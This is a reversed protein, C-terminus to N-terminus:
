QKYHVTEALRQDIRGIIKHQWASVEDFSLGVVGQGLAGTCYSALVRADELDTPNSLGDLDSFYGRLLDEYGELSNLGRLNLFCVEYISRRRIADFPSTLFNSEILNIWFPLDQRLDSKLFAQRAALRIEVFEPFSKGSPTKGKWDSLVKGYWTENESPIPPFIEAPINLFREAIWFVDRGGLLEAIANGDYVELGVQHTNQAWAQLKHRAAVTIDASAFYHIGEVTAGSATITKVDSKIKRNISKKDELSCAFAIPKTSALGVFTSNAISTSNLFTRFTEFDRGQDGGAAVPGTAPLINSCVRARVLHRCLHEFEHHANRASLQELGFRIQSIVQDIGAM